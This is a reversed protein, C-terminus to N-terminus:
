RMAADLDAGRMAERLYSAALLWEGCFASERVVSVTGMDSHDSGFHFGGFATFADDDFLDL